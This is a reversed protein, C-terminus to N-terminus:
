GLHLDGEGFPADLTVLVEDLQASLKSIARLRDVQESLHHLKFRRATDSDLTSERMREEGLEVLDADGAGAVVHHEHLLRRREFHVRLLAARILVFFHALPVIADIHSSRSTKRADALFSTLQLGLQILCPAGM